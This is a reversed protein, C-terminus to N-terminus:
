ASERLVLKTDLSLPSFTQTPSSIMALLREMSQKGLAYKDVQITSLSPMTIRSLKIDDFGIISVAEPVPKQLDACARLAGLAMLDNYTYIANIAPHNNLLQTAAEYGGELTASAEIIQDDTVQINNTALRNKFGQIRRVQSTSFTKNTLIGIQTRKQEAFHTAAMEGGRYNDVMLVSVNPHDIERNILVLPRYNDAFSRLEEDSIQHSFLIIGDVSQASLSRLMQLEVEANDDTNCLFVNYDNAQAVDQVGRTVEPFFPNSIDGLILGITFTRQTVMSQALRNPRYGLERVAKMVKDKTAQSIEDKDNIARSVTQRSVGAAEAVDEITIRKM